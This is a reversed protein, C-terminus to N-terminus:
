FNVEVRGSLNVGKYHVILEEEILILDVQPDVKLVRRISCVRAVM